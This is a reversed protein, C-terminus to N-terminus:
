HHSDELAVVVHEVSRSDLHAATDLFMRVNDVLLFHVLQEKIIFLRTADKELVYDLAVELLVAVVSPLKALLV